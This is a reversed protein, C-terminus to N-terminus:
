EAKIVGKSVKWFSSVYVVEHLSALLNKIVQEQARLLSCMKEFKFRRFQLAVKLPYASGIDKSILSVELHLLFILV